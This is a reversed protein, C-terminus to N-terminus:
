AFVPHSATEADIFPNAMRSRRKERKKRAEKEIGEALGFSIWSPACRRQYTETHIYLSWRKSRRAAGFCGM